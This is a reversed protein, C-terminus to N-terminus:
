FKCPGGAEARFTCWPCYQNPRPAFVTDSLMPKVRKAWRAKLEPVDAQTYVQAAEYIEGVDLYILQPKVTKVHPHLLLAALAYLDCQELYKENQEPRFKGTKWDRIILTEWEPDDPDYSACDLKIRVWCGTWDNWATEDWDKTFAWTDEVVMSQSLTKYDKKLQAFLKKFKALEAPLKTLKGKIFDEALKHVQDGRAMADNQPEKLKDIFKLKAKLPCQQYVDYRSFSWSTLPKIPIVKGAAM